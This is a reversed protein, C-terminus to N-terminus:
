LTNPVARSGNELEAGCVGGHLLEVTSNTSCTSSWLGALPAARHAGRTSRGSRIHRTLNSPRGAGNSRM